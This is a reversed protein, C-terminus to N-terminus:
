DTEYLQYFIHEFFFLFDLKSSSQNWCVRVKEHYLCFEPKANHINYQHFKKIPAFLVEVPKCTLLLDVRVAKADGLTKILQIGFRKSQSSIHFLFTTFPSTFNLSQWILRVGNYPKILKILKRLSSGFNCQDASTIWWRTFLRCLYPILEFWRPQM